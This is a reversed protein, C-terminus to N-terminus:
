RRAAEGSSTSRRLGDTDEDRLWALAEAIATRHDTVEVPGFTAAFASADAVWPRDFQHSVKRGERAQRSFLSALLLLGPSIDSIRTPSGLTEGVLHIIEHQTAPPAAPLVWARGDADPREVLEAFGRAVDPLYHWTHAQDGALMVRVTRGVLAPRFVMSHLFSNTGGPGYYDSARGVATTFRDDELLRSALERRLAGKGTAHEPSRETIPGDAPGYMYLSDVYVLRAGVQAVVDGVTDLMRESNGAWAHYPPMAAMVVVEADTCAAGTSTPDYVDVAVGQGGV